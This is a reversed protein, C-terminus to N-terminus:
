RPPGCRHMSSSTTRTPGSTMVPSGSPGATMPMSVSLGGVQTRAAVWTAGSLIARTAVVAEPAVRTSGVTRDAM